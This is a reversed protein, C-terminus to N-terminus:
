PQRERSPAAMAIRVAYPNVVVFGAISRPHLRSKHGGSNYDAALWVPGRIHRKLVFVHGRRVAVMNPAPQARPFKFWAVSPWLARVARGFVDVSAGCGCFRTKPCGAPHPLLRAEASRLESAFAPLAAFILSLALVVGIVLATRRRDEATTFAESM